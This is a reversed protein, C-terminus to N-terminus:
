TAKQPRVPTLHRISFFDIMGPNLTWLPCADVLYRMMMLWDSSQLVKSQQSSRSIIVIHQHCAHARCMLWDNNDLRAPLPCTSAAAASDRDQRRGLRVSGLRERPKEHALNHAIRQRRGLDLSRCCFKSASQSIKKRAPHLSFSVDVVNCGKTEVVRVCKHWLFVM